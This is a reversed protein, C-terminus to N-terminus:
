HAQRPEGTRPHRGADKASRGRQFCCPTGGSRCLQLDAGLTTYPLAPKSEGDRTKTRTQPTTPPPDCEYHKSQESTWAQERRINVLEQMTWYPAVEAYKRDLSLSLQRLRLFLQEQRILSQFILSGPMSLVHLFELPVKAFLPLIPYGQRRTQQSASASRRPGVTYDDTSNDRNRCRGRCVGAKRSHSLHFFIISLSM